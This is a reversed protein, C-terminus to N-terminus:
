EIETLHIPNLVSIEPMSTAYPDPFGDRASKGEINSVFYDM